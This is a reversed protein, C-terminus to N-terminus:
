RYIQNECKETQITNSYHVTNAKYQKSTVKGNKLIENHQQIKKYGVTNTAKPDKQRPNKFLYIFINHLDEHM